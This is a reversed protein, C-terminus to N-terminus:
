SLLGLNQLVTVLQGVTTIGASSQQYLKIINGNETRFHPAANGAVIDASYQQFADTINNSPETGNIIAFVRKGNGQNTGGITWNKGIYNVYMANNGTTDAGTQAFGSDNTGQSFGTLGAVTLQFNRSSPVQGLGLLISGTGTTNGNGGNIGINMFRDVDLSFSNNSFNAFSASTLAGNHITLYPSSAFSSPTAGLNLSTARLVNNGLVEFLNASDASNRVRFAIDTSLAGQARVDLRAGLTTASGIGVNGGVDLHIRTVGNTQIATQNTGNLTTFFNSTLTLGNGSATVQTVGTQSGLYTTFGDGSVGGGLNFAKNGNLIFLDATDASNRVRFPIDTGSAGVARLTLRKLTNDWALASDQQVVDGTGQFFVRGVTGSTVSTTGVTIDSSGGVVLNGSGLLSNGNISKINTGSVLDDQKSDLASQLDSQTSLTGTISGWEAGSGGSATKFGTNERLFTTFTNVTYVDGSDEATINGAELDAVSVKYQGQTIEKIYFIDDTFLYLTHGKAYEYLNDGDQVIVYNGSSYIKAM